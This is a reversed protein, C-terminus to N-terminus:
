EENTKGPLRAQAARPGNHNLTFGTILWGNPETVTFTGGVGLYRQVVKFDGPLLHGCQLGSIDAPLPFPGLPPMPDACSLPEVVSGSLLYPWPHGCNLARLEGDRGIELLLVTM